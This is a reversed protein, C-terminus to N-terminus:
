PSSAASRRPVAAPRRPQRDPARRRHPPRPALESIARLLRKRHGLPLGLQVLDQETLEALTEADIAQEAFTEAYAGLGQGDLWAAVDIEKRLRWRGSFIGAPAAFYGIEARCALSAIPRCRLPGDSPKDPDRRRRM